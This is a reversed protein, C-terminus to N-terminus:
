EFNLFQISNEGQRSVQKQNKLQHDECTDLRKLIGGKSESGGVSRFM